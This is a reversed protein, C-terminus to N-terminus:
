LKAAAAASQASVRKSASALDSLSQFYRAHTRRLAAADQATLVVVETDPSDRHLREARFRETLAENADDYPVERLLRAHAKDFVILFHKVDPVTRGGEENRLTIWGM